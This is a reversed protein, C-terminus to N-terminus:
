DTTTLASAPANMDALKRSVLASVSKLPQDLATFCPPNRRLRGWDNREIIRHLYELNREIFEFYPNRGDYLVEIYRYARNFKKDLRSMAMYQYFDPTKRLLDVGSAYMLGESQEADNDADGIAVGALVFESYLRDRCKELYCRDAMQAMLDATGLFHGILSDQPNELEIDDINLEYGTFHVIRSAVGAWSGLGIRPLYERLFDASRSVHWTTFEAGNARPPEDKRRIYGSDHFLAVIIGVMIREEGLHEAEACSREYGVLLRAMALTMDLSHQRDHYVTDCGEYDLWRGDYLQEFDHFAIWLRDFAVQPFAECYIDRLADRVAPTSSVKVTNTVDYENRRDSPQFRSGPLFEYQSANYM